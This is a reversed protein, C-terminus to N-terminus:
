RPKLIVVNLSNVYKQLFTQLQELPIHCKFRDEARTDFYEYTTWLASNKITFQMIWDVRCRERDDLPQIILWVHQLYFLSVQSDEVIYLFSYMSDYVIYVSM